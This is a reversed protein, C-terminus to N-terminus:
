RSNDRDIAAKLRALDAKTRKREIAASGLGFFLVLFCAWVILILSGFITSIRELTAAERGLMYTVFGFFVIWIAYEPRRAVRLSDRLERTKIQRTTRRAPLKVQPGPLLPLANFDFPNTTEATTM